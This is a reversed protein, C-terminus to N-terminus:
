KLNSSSLSLSSLSFNDVKAQLALRRKFFTSCEVVDVIHAVSFKWLSELSHSVTRPMLSSRKALHSPLSWWTAEDSKGKKKRKEKNGESSCRTMGRTKQMNIKKRGEKRGQKGSTM